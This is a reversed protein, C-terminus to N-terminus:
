VKRLVFLNENCSSVKAEVRCNFQACVYETVRIFDSFRWAHVHLDMGSAMAMAAEAHIREESLVEGTLVPHVYRCHEIYAQWRTGEGGDESDAIVHDLSTPPRQRDWTLTLEPVVLLLVGGTVLRRLMAEIAGLPDFLHEIVHACIVFDLSADCIGTMTQADIREGASISDTGFYAVLEACDRLDGYQCVSGEPLPFPRSGAGLEVGNGAIFVSALTRRVAQIETEAALEAAERRQRHLVACRLALDDHPYNEWFEPRENEMVMM